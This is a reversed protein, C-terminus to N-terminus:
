YGKRFTTGACRACPPVITTKTISVEQGCAKCTLTGASSLEGTRYDLGEGAQEGLRQLAGGASGLVAAISALAGAGLRAPHLREATERQATRLEEATRELDRRLFRQFREGQERSITEAAALQERAATMAREMAERTRDKGSEFTHRFLEAFRDYIEEERAPTSRPGDKPHNLTKDDIRDNM